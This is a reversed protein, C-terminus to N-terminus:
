VGECGTTMGSTWEEWVDHFFWLDGVQGAACSLCETGKFGPPSYTNAPCFICGGTANAQRYMGGNCAACELGYENKPLDVDTIKCIQPQLWQYIKNRSSKDCVSYMFEYDEATCPQRDECTASGPYAYQDATCNLCSASAPPSYTNQPCINCQSRGEASSTGEPCPFCEEEHYKTGKVELVQVYAKDDGESFSFDKKYLWKLTHTGISLLLLCFTNPYHYRLSFLTILNNQRM